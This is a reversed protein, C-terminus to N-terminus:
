VISHTFEKPVDLDSNSARLDTTIMTKLSALEGVIKKKEVCNQKRKFQSCLFVQTVKLISSFKQESLEVKGQM